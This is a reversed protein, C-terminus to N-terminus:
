PILIDGANNPTVISNAAAQEQMEEKLQDIRLQAQDDFADFCERLNLGVPFELDMKMPGNPTNIYFEGVFFPLVGEDIPTHMTILRGVDDTYVDNKYIDTTQPHEGQTTDQTTDQTSETEDKPLIQLNPKDESM